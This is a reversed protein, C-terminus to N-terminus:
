ASLLLAPLAAVLERSRIAPSPLLRPQFGEADRRQGALVTSDGAAPPLVGNAGHTSGAEAPAHNGRSFLGRGLRKGGFACDIWSVTYEYDRESEASLEFFEDLSRFRITEGAICPGPRLKLRICAWTIVGTLGLGGVHSHVLRRETRRVTFRRGDSRLLEFDIVHNGFSGARHHNKGHVDNAIAGGVTIFQTGPTVMPFWGQPVYRSLIESLLVGAECILIGTRADFELFRNLSRMDLLIGGPNLNSDGYSRGNGFPLVTPRAGAAPSQDEAAVSNLVSEIANGSRPM